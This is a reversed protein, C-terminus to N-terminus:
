IHILSLYSEMKVEKCITFIQFKVLDQFLSSSQFAKILTNRYISNALDSSLAVRIDNKNFELVKVKGQALLTDSRPIGCRFAEEGYCDETVLTGVEKNNKICRIVGEKVIMLDSDAVVISDGSEYVKITVLNYLLEKQQQALMSFFKLHNIAEKKLIYEEHSVEELAELYSEKDLTYIICNSSTRVTQTRPSENIWETEGFM